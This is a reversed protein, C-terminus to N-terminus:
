LSLLWCRNDGMYMQVFQLTNCKDEAIDVSLV